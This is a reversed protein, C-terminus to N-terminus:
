KRFVKRIYNKITHNRLIIKKNKSLQSNKIKNIKCFGSSNFDFSVLIKEMNANLINLIEFFTEYNNLESNFNDRVNKKSYPIWSTDDVFISRNLKLNAFYLHIIKSVHDANHFSDIYILDFENGFNSIVKDYDDDRCKLFTWKISSAVNSYDEIDVSFLRGDQKECYELFFNTSIGHRVGLELIKPKEIKSLYESMNRELKLLYESKTNM